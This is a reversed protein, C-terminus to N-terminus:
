YLLKVITNKNDGPWLEGFEALQLRGKTYDFFACAYGSGEINYKFSAIIVKKNNVSRGHIKASVNILLQNADTQTKTMFVLEQCNAEAMKISLKDPAYENASALDFSAILLILVILILLMGFLTFCKNRTFVNCDQCYDNNRPTCQFGDKHCKKNNM